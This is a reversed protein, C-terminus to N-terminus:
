DEQDLGLIRDALIDLRRDQYLPKHVPGQWSFTESILTSGEIRASGKELAKIEEDTLMDFQKAFDFAPYGPGTPRPKRPKSQAPKRPFPSRRRAM